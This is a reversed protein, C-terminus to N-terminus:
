CQIWHVWEIDKKSFYRVENEDKELFPFLGKNAWFRLTRSPMKTLREVEIITYTM